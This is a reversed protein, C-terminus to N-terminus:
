RSSRACFSRRGTAAAGGAGDGAGCAVVNGGVEEVPGDADMPGVAGVPGPADVADVGEVPDVPVAGEAGAGAVAWPNEGTRM